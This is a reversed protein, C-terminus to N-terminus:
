EDRWYLKFKHQSVRQDEPPLQMYDGYLRRLYLDYGEPAPLMLHEFPMMVTGSFVDAKANREVFLHQSSTAVGVYVSEDFSRNQAVANMKRAYANPTKRFVAKNLFRKCLYSILSMNPTKTQISALNILKRIAYLRRAHLCATFDLVPYGDIPFIDIFAGLQTGNNVWNVVGSDYTTNKDILKAYPSGYHENIECAFIEYRENRFEHIMREYDPRPMMMDVDDDWPIYGKHRVAGLLTGGAMYYRLGKEECYQKFVQLIELGCAQIDKCSLERM